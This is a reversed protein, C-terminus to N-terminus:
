FGGINKTYGISFVPFYNIPEMHRGHSIIRSTGAEIFVSRWRIHGLLTMGSFKSTANWYGVRTSLGMEFDDTILYSVLLPSFGVQTVSKFGYEGFIGVSVAFQSDQYLSKKYDLGISQMNNILLGLEQRWPLSVRYMASLSPGIGTDLPAFVDLLEWGYVSSVVTAAAVYTQEYPEPIRASTLPSLSTCAGCLLLVGSLFFNRM